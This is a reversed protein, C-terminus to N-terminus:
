TIVRHADANLCDTRGTDIPQALCWSDQREVRSDARGHARRMRSNVSVLAFVSKFVLKFVLAFPLVSM